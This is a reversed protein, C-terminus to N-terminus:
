VCRVGFHVNRGGYNEATFDGAGDFTLRTNTSPALDASGGILWPVNRALINLAQGSAIRGAMGSDSAPFEPLAKDWGAPLERNQMRRLDDALDPYQQQYEDLKVFWADRLSRSRRGM